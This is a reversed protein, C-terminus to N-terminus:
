VIGESLFFLSGSVTGLHYSDVGGSRFVSSHDRLRLVLVISPFGRYSVRDM